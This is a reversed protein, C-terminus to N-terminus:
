EILRVAAIRGDRVEYIVVARLTEGSPTGTVEEHDIVVHGQVVRRLVTARLEPAARFLAGYLARLEQQGTFLPRDPYDFGRVDHAYTAAFTELDRRNYADLQAQVVREAATLASDASAAPPEEASAPAPRDGCGM